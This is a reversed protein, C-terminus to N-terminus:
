ARGEGILAVLSPELDFEAALQNRRGYQRRYRCRIAARVDQPLEGALVTLVATKSTVVERAIESPTMTSALELIRARKEPRVIRKRERSRRVPSRRRVVTPARLAPSVRRRALRRRDWPVGGQMLGEATFKLATWVDGPERCRRIYDYALEEDTFGSQVKRNATCDWVIFDGISCGM